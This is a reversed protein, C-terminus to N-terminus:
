ASSRPCVTNSIILVPNQLTMNWPGDFREPPTVPWFECGSDPEHTIIGLDFRTVNVMVQLQTDIFDEPTPGVFPRVDNCTVASRELDVLEPENVENLVASGDGAMAQALMQAFDPWDSPSVLSDIQNDPSPNAPHDNHRM